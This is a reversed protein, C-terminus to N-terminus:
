SAAAVTARRARAPLGCAAAHVHAHIPHTTAVGGAASSMNAQAKLTRATSGHGRARPVQQGVVVLDRYAGAPAHTAPRRRRAANRGTHRPLPTRSRTLERGRAYTESPRTM